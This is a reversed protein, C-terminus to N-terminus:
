GIDASKIINQSIESHSILKRDSVTYIVGEENDMDEIAAAQKGASHVYKGTQVLDDTSLLYCCTIKRSGDVYVAPIFLKKASFDVEVKDRDSIRGEIKKEFKIEGKQDIKRVTSDPSITILGGQVSIIKDDPSIGASYSVPTKGSFDIAATNEADTIVVTSGYKQVAIATEDTVSAFNVLSDAATFDLTIGTTYASLSNGNLVAFGPNGEENTVIKLVKGDFPAFATVTTDTNMVVVESTGSEYSAAIVSEGSICIDTCFPIYKSKSAESPRSLDIGIVLLCNAAQPVDHPLAGTSMMTKGGDVYKLYSFNAEKKTSATIILKEGTLRSGAYNGYFNISKIFKVNLRDSLDYLYVTSSSNVPDTKILALTDGSIYADALVTGSAESKKIKMVTKKSLPKESMEEAPLGRYISLVTATGDDTEKNSILYIFGGDVTMSYVSSHENENGNTRSETVQTSGHVATEAKGTTETGNEARPADGPTGSVPKISRNENDSKKGFFKSSVFEVASHINFKATSEHSAEAIFENYSNITYAGAIILAVAAAASVFRRIYVVKSKKNKVSAFDIVNQEGSSYNEEFLAVASKKNLSEPIKISDSEKSFIEKLEELTKRDKGNM